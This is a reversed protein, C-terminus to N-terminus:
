LTLRSFNINIRLPNKQSNNYTNIQQNHNNHDWQITIM